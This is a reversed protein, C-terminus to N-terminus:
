LWVSSTCGKMRFKIMRGWRIGKKMRELYKPEGTSRIMKYWRNYQLVNKKRKRETKPQVKNRRENDEKETKEYTSIIERESIEMKRVWKIGKKEIENVNKGEETREEIHVGILKKGGGNQM